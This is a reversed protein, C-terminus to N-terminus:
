QGGRKIRSVLREAIANAEKRMDDSLNADDFKPKVEGGLSVSSVEATRRYKGVMKGVDPDESAVVLAYRIARQKDPSIDFDTTKHSAVNVLSAIDGVQADQVVAQLVEPRRVGLNFSEVAAGAVRKEIAVELLRLRWQDPDGAITQCDANIRQDNQIRKLRAAQVAVDQSPPQQPFDTSNLMRAVFPCEWLKEAVDMAMEGNHSELARHIQSDLTGPYKNWDLHRGVEPLPAQQQKKSEGETSITKVAISPFATNGSIVASGTDHMQKIVAVDDTQRTFFLLASSALIIALIVLYPRRIIM